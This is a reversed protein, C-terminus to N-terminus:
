LNNNKSLGFNNSGLSLGLNDNGSIGFNGNVYLGINGNGSQGINNNGSQIGPNVNISPLRSGIITPKINNSTRIAVIEHYNLWPQSIM